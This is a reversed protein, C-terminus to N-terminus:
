ANDAEWKAYESHLTEVCEDTKIAIRIGGYVLAISAVAKGINNWM